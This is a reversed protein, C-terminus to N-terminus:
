STHPDIVKRWRRPVGEWAKLYTKELPLTIYWDSSLFLPMDTLEDGVAIPDIYSSTTLGAEYAALILPKTTPLEIFTGGLEKQISAIIGESDRPNPLILDILLLHIRKRLLDVARDVFSRLTQKSEKNEPLVIELVAILNDDNIKRISLRSQKHSIVDPLVNVRESLAYYDPPLLGDNLALKIVQIWLGHFDHFIGADVKTWDHIPM